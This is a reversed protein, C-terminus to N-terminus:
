ISSRDTPEHIEAGVGILHRCRHHHPVMRPQHPIPSNQLSGRLKRPYSNYVYIATLNLVKLYVSSVKGTTPKIGIFVISM